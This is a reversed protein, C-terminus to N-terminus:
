KPFTSHMVDFTRFSAGLDPHIGPHSSKLHRVMHDRRYHVQSCLRTETSCGSSLNLRHESNMHEVTPSQERHEPPCYACYMTNGIKVVAPVTCLFGRLPFANTEHRRWAKRKAFEKDCKRTCQLPQNPDRVLRAIDSTPPCSSRPQSSWEAEFLSHNVVPSSQWAAPIKLLHNGDNVSSSVASQIFESDNPDRRLTKPLAMKTLAAESPVRMIQRPLSEPPYFDCGNETTGLDACSTASSNSSGVGSDRSSSPVLHIRRNVWQEFFTPPQGTLQSLANIDADRPFAKPYSHLWYDCFRGAIQDPDMKTSEKYTDKMNQADVQENRPKSAPTIPPGCEQAGTLDMAIDLAAINEDLPNSLDTMPMTFPVPMERTGDLQPYTTRFNSHFDQMLPESLEPAFISGLSFRLTSATDPDLVYDVLENDDLHDFNLWSPQMHSVPATM